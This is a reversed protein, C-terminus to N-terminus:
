IFYIKAYENQHASPAHFNIFYIIKKYVPASEIASRPPM